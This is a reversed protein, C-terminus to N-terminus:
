ARNLEIINSQQVTRYGFTRNCRNREIPLIKQHTRNPEITGIANSQYFKKTLEIPNSQVSQTRYAFKKKTLEIPNSQVSQTRYAFNKQHTRNPEITGIANSLCNKKPSNSQTRNYRNREIPLIKKTLEIANSQVSQTGISNVVDPKYSVANPKRQM